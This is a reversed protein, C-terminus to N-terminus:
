VEFPLCVIGVGSCMLFQVVSVHSDKTFMLYAVDTLAKPQTSGDATKVQHAPLAKGEFWMVDFPPRQTGFDGQDSGWNLKDSAWYLRMVDDMEVYAQITAGRLVDALRLLRKHSTLIAFKRGAQLEHIIRGNGM